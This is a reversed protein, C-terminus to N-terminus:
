KEPLSTVLQSVKDLAPLQGAIIEDLARPQILKSLYADMGAVLCREEDGKLAHATLAIVVQLKRSGAGRERLIATATLGDMEPMQVDMFVLDYEDKALADLAEQGNAVVFVRPGRKELMQAVLVFKDKGAGDPPNLLRLRLWVAIAIGAAAVGVVVLIHGM